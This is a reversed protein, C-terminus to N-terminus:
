AGYGTGKLSGLIFGKNRTSSHPNRKYYRFVQKRIRNMNKNGVKDGRYSLSVVRKSVLHLQTAEQRLHENEGEERIIRNVMDSLSKLAPNFSEMIVRISETIGEAIRIAEKSAVQFTLTLEQVTEDWKEKEILANKIYKNM